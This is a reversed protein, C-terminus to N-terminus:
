TRTGSAGRGRGQCVRGAPPLYAMIVMMVQIDEGVDVMLQEKEEKTIDEIPSAHRSAYDCPMSKCSLYKDTFRLDQQTFWKHM